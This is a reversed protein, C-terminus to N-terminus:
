FSMAPADSQPLSLTKAKWKGFFGHKLPNSEGAGLKVYRVPRNVERGPRTYGATAWGRDRGDGRPAEGNSYGPDQGTCVGPHRRLHM